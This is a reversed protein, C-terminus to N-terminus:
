RLLKMYIIANGILLMITAKPIIIILLIHLISLYTDLM